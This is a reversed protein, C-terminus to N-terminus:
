RRYRIWELCLGKAPLTPGSNTRDRSELAARVGAATMRGRGVELLTGSIIRVMNYLFGTGAVDIRVRRGDASRSVERVACSLVTRVTTLRGHGAAAFAAFDHEGVIVQAAEHMAEVHLADWVEHVFWRDWLPRVGPIVEGEAAGEPRARLSEHITYSYSKSECDGIPDFGDDVARAAVIRVDEPLRGNIARALREVGRSLPWGSSSGRGEAGEAGDTSGGCTFAAVQGRAHVGADTRSAGMVTVPERVISAVARELVHQVTRLAVRPREEGERAPLAEADKWADQHESLDRAPAPRQDMPRNEGPRADAYPEQRQWGCFNTGDYAITLAYRPM